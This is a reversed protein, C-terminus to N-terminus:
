AALLQLIALLDFIDLRGNNDVDSGSSQPENGALEQLLRILDFINVQGSGDVDGPVTYGESNVTRFDARLNHDHALLEWAGEFSRAAWSRGSPEGRTDLSLPYGKGGDNETLSVVVVFSDDASFYLPPEFWLTHWGKEELSDSLNALSRSFDGPEEMGSYVTASLYMDPQNLYIDISQLLGPWPTTFVVAAWATFDGFGATATAGLEDYALDFLETTASFWVEFNPSNRDSTEILVLASDTGPSGSQYSVTVFVSDLCPVEYELQDIKFKETAEALVVTAQYRTTGSNVLWFGGTADEGVKLGTLSMIGSVEAAPRKLIIDTSDVQEPPVILARISVPVQSILWPEWERRNYYSVAQSVSLTDAPVLERYSTGPASFEVDAIFTDGSDVDIPVDLFLQHWGPDHLLSDTSVEALLCRPGGGSIESWVKLVPKMFPQLLCVRVGSLVGRREMTFTVAGHASESIATYGAPTETSDYRLSYGVIEAKLSAELGSLSEAAPEISMKGSYDGLSEAAFGLLVEIVSGCPVEAQYPGLSFGDGSIEIEKILANRAGPNLLPMNFLYTEGSFCRGLDIEESGMALLPEVRYYDEGKYDTNLVARISIDHDFSDFTSLGLYDVLSRGQAGRSGDYPVPRGEDFGSSTYGIVVVLTDGTELWLPQDIDLTAWGDETVSGAQEAIRCGMVGDKEGTYLELHYSMDRYLFCTTVAELVGDAPASFVVAGYAINDGYGFGVPEPPSRDYALTLSSRQPQEINFFAQGNELRIGTVAVGSATKDYRESSPNTLTAFGTNETVGPFPDGGDGQNARQDLDALGDAEELDVLMHSPDNNDSVSEDVHWILLGEGPLQSDFGTRRRYSLLFYSFARNDNDWLRAVLASTNVPPLSQEGTENEFVPSIWGLRLKSWACPHTPSQPSAGDGGYSGHGMLGWVGIGNSLVGASADGEESTDYLDVLGLQHGLEHCYVGIESALASSGDWLLEPVVSYLDVRIWGGGAAPDGTEVAHEGLMGTHSWLNANDGAAADGGPHVVLLADVVGDDDGSNPRGDPGDNDYIGYDVLHDAALVADAVYGEPSEPYVANQGLPGGATYGAQDLPTSVWGYVSGEVDLLERSVESYYDKLSGTSYQGFFMSSFTVPDTVGQRDAYSALIVAVPLRRVNDAALFPGSNEQIRKRLNESYEINRRAVFGAFGPPTDVGSAPPAVAGLPQRCIVTLILVLFIQEKIRSM